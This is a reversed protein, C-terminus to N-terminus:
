DLVVQLDNCRYDLECYEILELVNDVDKTSVYYNNNFKYIPRHNYIKSLDNTKLYFNGYEINIKTDIKKNRSVYEDIKYIEIYSGVKEDMFIDLKYYGVLDINYIESLYIFIKKVYKSINEENLDDFYIIDCIFFIYKDDLIELNM